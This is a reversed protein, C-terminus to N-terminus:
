AGPRRQMHQRIINAAEQSPNTKVPPAPSGEANPETEVKPAPPPVPKVGTKSPDPLTIQPFESSPTNSAPQEPEDPVSQPLLVPPPAMPYQPPAYMGQPPYGYSYPNYPMPPQYYQPMPPYPSPPMFQPPQGYGM